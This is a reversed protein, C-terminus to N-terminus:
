STPGELRGPQPADPSTKWGCAGYDFHIVMWNDPGSLFAGDGVVTSRSHAAEYIADVALWQDRDRADYALRVHHDDLQEVGVGVDRAHELLLRIASVPPPREPVRALEARARRYRLPSPVRMTLM